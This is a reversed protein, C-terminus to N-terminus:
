EARITGKQSTDSKSKSKSKSKSLFFLFFYFYFFLFSSSLYYSFPLNKIRKKENLNHHSFYACLVIKLIRHTHTHTNVKGQISYGNVIREFDLSGDSNKRAKRKHFNLNKEKKKKNNNKLPDVSPTTIVLPTTETENNNSNNNRQM